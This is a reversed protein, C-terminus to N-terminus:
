TLASNEMTVFSSCSRPLADTYCYTAVLGNTNCISAVKVHGFMAPYTTPHSTLYLSTTHTHISKAGGKVGGKFTRWLTISYHFLLTHYIHRHHHDDRFLGLTVRHIYANWNDQNLYNLVLDSRGTPPNIM